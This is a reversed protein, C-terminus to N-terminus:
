KTLNFILNKAVKETFLEAGENSLHTKDKWYDLNNNEKFLNTWDYYNLNKKNLIKRLEINDNECLDDFKPSTFFILNKNNENCFEILEDIYDNYIKNLIFDDKCDSNKKDRQIIKSFIKKQNESVYLPDYGFYNGIDYNPKFYNKLIGMVSRNYSLSWYLNQILNNQKLNDIEHKIIDNRNYKISLGLIDNGLYDQNFASEPDIHLLIIQEKERPLLKILTASYAIRRGDMGMNFSNKLIKISNIHHNARSSGFVILDLTDKNQMYQNLKGITQGTFVEDSIKNFVSFFIRDGLLSIILILTLTKIIYKLSSFDM